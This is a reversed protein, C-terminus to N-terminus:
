GNMPRQMSEKWFYFKGEWFLHIGFVFLLFLLLKMVFAGNIGAFGGVRM